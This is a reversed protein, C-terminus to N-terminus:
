SWPTLLDGLRAAFSGPAADVSLGLLLGYVAGGVAAWGITKRLGAPFREVAMVLKAVGYLVYAGVVFVVVTLVPVAATDFDGSAAPLAILIGILLTLLIAQQSYRRYTNRIRLDSRWRTGWREAYAFWLLGGAVLVPIVIRAINTLM